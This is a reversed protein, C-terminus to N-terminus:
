RLYKEMLSKNKEEAVQEFKLVTEMFVEAAPSITRNKLFIFGHVPAIWPNQYNILVFEGAALESEIQSPIAAGIGDSQSVVM